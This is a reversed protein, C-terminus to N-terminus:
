HKKRLVTAGMGLVAVVALVSVSSNCGKKGDATKESNNEPAKNSEEGANTPDAAQTPAETPVDTPADTPAETPADTPAETTNEAAHNVGFMDFETIRACYYHPDNNDAGYRRMAACAYIVNTVNEYKQNLDEKVYRYTYKYAGSADKVVVETMNGGESEPVAANSVISGDAGREFPVSSWALSYTQGGDQSVLIDFASDIQWYPFTEGYESGVDYSRENNFYIAFSDVDVNLDEFMIYYFYVKETGDKLKFKYDGGDAEYENQTNKSCLSYNFYCTEGVDAAYYGDCLTYSVKENNSRAYLTCYWQDLVDTKDGNEVVYKEASASVVFLATLTLISLVVALIRSATKKM